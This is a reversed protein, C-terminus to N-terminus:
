IIAKGEVSPLNYFFILSSIAQVTGIVASLINIVLALSPNMTYIIRLGNLLVGTVASLILLKLLVDILNTKVLNFSDIASEFMTKGQLAGMPISVALIVTIIVPVIIIKMGLGMLLSQFVIAGSSQIWNEKVLKIAGLWNTPNGKAKSDILKIISVIYIVQAIIGLIGYLFNPLKLMSLGLIPIQVALTIIFIDKINGIFLAFVTKLYDMIGMKGNFCSNVIESTNYKM